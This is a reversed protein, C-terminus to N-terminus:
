KYWSWIFYECGDGTEGESKWRWPVNVMFDDEKKFGMSEFDHWYYFKSPVETTEALFVAKNAIRKFEEIIAAVDEIHDLVSVTFVIDFNQIHKLMEEDGLIINSLGKQSAITMNPWSVDIGAKFIDDNILKLNKGTGCGFELVSKPELEEIRFIVEESLPSLNDDAVYTKYFEKAESM